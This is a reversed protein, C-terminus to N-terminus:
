LQRVESPFPKMERELAGIDITLMVEEELSHVGEDIDVGEDLFSKVRVPDEEDEM